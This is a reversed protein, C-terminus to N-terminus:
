PEGAGLLLQVEAYHRLPKSNGIGIVPAAITEQYLLRGDGFEVELGFRELLLGKLIEIQVEGMVQVQIWAGGALGCSAGPNGGGSAALHGLVKVPDSGQPLILRYGMVPTLLPSQM